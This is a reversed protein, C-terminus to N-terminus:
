VYFSVFFIFKYVRSDTKINNEFALMIDRKNPDQEMKFKLSIVDEDTLEKDRGDLNFKRPNHEAFAKAIRKYYPVPWTSTSMVREQVPRTPNGTNMLSFTRKLCRRLM